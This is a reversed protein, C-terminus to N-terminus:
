RRQLVRWPVQLEQLASPLHPLAQHGGPSLKLQSVHFVDHIAASPPLELKYAVEGIRQIIQFPGFFKFRLKNHSRPAVTSQVYPQLKLFVWDGVAFTRESHGKDAQKKMRTQARLLHQKVLAQM